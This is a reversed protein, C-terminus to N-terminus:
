LIFQKLYQLLYFYYIFLQGGVQNSNQYLSINVPGDCTRFIRPAPAQLVTTPMIQGGPQSLTLQNAGRGGAQSLGARHEFSVNKFPCSAPGVFIPSLRLFYTYLFSISQKRVIHGTRTPKISFKFTYAFFFYVIVTTFFYSLCLILMQVDNKLIQVTQLQSNLAFKKVKQPKYWRHSLLNINSFFCM